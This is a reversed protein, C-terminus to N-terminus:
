AVREL